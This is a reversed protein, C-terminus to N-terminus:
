RGRGGSGRIGVGPESRQVILNDFAFPIILGHICQKAIVRVINEGRPLDDVAKVQFVTGDRYESSGDEYHVVLDPVPDYEFIRCPDAHAEPIVCFVFPNNKIM